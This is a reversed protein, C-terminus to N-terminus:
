TRRLLTRIRCRVHCDAVMRILVPKVTYVATCRAQSAAQENRAVSGVYRGRRHGCGVRAGANPRARLASQIRCLCRGAPHRRLRASARGPSRRLLEALLPVPGGAPRPGGFPRDDRVYVWARATDTKGSALAPVPTDDGHLRDAALVHAAILDHLPRLAVTCAGVQDALTSLSLDVGERAYRDRQRNVPAPLGRRFRLRGSIRWGPDGRGAPAGCFHVRVGCEGSGPRGARDIGGRVGCARCRRGGRLRPDKKRM